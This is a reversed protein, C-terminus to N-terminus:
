LDRKCHTQIFIAPNDQQLRQKLKADTVIHM